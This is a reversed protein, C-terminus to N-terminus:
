NFNEVLMCEFTARVAINGALRAEGSFGFIPDSDDDMKAFLEITDGPRVPKLFEVNKLGVVVPLGSGAESKNLNAMLIGATQLLAEVIMVGPMVPEGPFHGQFFFEDGKLTKSAIIEPEDGDHISVVEDVLLMPPRHPLLTQIVDAGLRM